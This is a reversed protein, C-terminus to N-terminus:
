VSVVFISADVTCNEFVLWVVVGGSVVLVFVVGHPIVGLCDSVM